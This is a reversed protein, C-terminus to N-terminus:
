GPVVDFAATLRVGEGHFPATGHWMYSPFLVLVGPEPKVYHEAPLAPATPIGPEGFGLWGEYGQDIGSPVVLHCASSIWGLPHVHNAHYGGPGLRVSWAGNFDFDGAIRGRLPDAGAGLGAIYQAIAKRVTPFFAAIAPDADPSQSLEGQTGFRISQGLPHGRFRHTREVAEALDDIYASLSRWGPSPELQFARVLRDYDYLEQYADVGLIRWAAAQLAIALQNMPWRRRLGLATEGAAKAEGAALQAQCLAVAANLDEPAAAVANRAHDLAASSDFAAALNAAAAQAAADARVGPPAAALSAYAARPRGAYELLRAKKLRLDPDHPHADIAQDLAQTSADADETRLWILQALDGHADAFAPRRGIAERFAAEAEDLRGLGRLARGRVLWTEPADLGKAFARRSAEESDVYRQIEGYHAALNQEALPNAPAADRARLYAVTADDPRRLAKLALAEVTLVNMEADPREVFPAIAARADAPRGAGLLMLGLRVAAASLSPDLRIAARFAAEAEGLRALSSLAAGHVYHAMALAPSARVLDAALMEARAFDQAALAQGIRQLHSQEAPTPGSM